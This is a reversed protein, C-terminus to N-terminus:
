INSAPLSVLVRPPLSRAAGLLWLVATVSAAPGVPTCHGGGVPESRASDEPQEEDGAAPGASREGWSPQQPRHRGGRRRAQGRPIPVTAAAYFAGGTLRRGRGPVDPEPGRSLRAVGGPSVHKEGGPARPPRSAAADPSMTFWYDGAEKFHFCEFELTGQVQIALLHKTAVTRNTSAEVLLVSVKWLTRNAGDVYQFAVSVSSNSLAVHGPEGLLLYEADGLVANPAGCEVYECLVVLPLKFLREVDTENQDAFDWTKPRRMDKRVDLDHINKLFVETHRGGAGRASPSDPPRAPRADRPAQRRGTGRRADRGGAPGARGSPAPLAARLVPAGPALDGGAGWGPLADEAGARLAGPAPCSARRPTPAATWPRAPLPCLGPLRTSGGGWCVGRGPQHRANGLGGICASTEM